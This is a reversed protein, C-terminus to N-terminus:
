TSVSSRKDFDAIWDRVKDLDNISINKLCDKIIIGSEVFDQEKITGSEKIKQGPQTGGAIAKESELSPRVPVSELSAVRGPPLMAIDGNDLMKFRTKTYKPLSTELIYKVQNEDLNSNEGCELGNKSIAEIMAKIVAIMQIINSKLTTSATKNSMWSIEVGLLDYIMQTVYEFWDQVYGVSGQLINRMQVLSNNLPSINFYEETKGIGQQEEPPFYGREWKKEQDDDYEESITRGDKSWKKDKMERIRKRKEERENIKKSKRENHLEVFREERNEEEEANDYDDILLHATSDRIEDAALIAEEVPYSPSTPKYKKKGSDEFEKHAWEGWGNGYYNPSDSDVLGTSFGAGLKSDSPGFRNAIPLKEALSGPIGTRINAGVSSSIQSFPIKAQQLTIITQNLHDLVCNMPGVILQIWKDLWMSLGDLFPSLIPGVLSIIFDFNFQIDLNLKALYQSLLITMAVLDSPCMSGLYKLLSCIDVFSGLNGFLERIDKLLDGRIKINLLHIELLDGNPLLAGPDLLRDFCPVCQTLITGLQGAKNKSNVDFLAKYDIGDKSSSELAGMFSEPNDMANDWFDLKEESMEKANEYAPDVHEGRKSTQHMGPYHDFEEQVRQSFNRTSYVDRYHTVKSAEETNTQTSNAEFYKIVGALDQQKTPSKTGIVLKRPSDELVTADRSIVKHEESTFPM